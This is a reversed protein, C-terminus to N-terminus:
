RGATLVRRTLQPPVGRVRGILLPVALRHIKYCCAYARAEYRGKQGRHDDLRRRQSGHQIQEGGNGNQDNRQAPVVAGAEHGAEDAAHGDGQDQRREAADTKGEDGGQGGPPQGIEGQESARARVAGHFPVRDPPQEGPDRGRRRQGDDGGAHDRRAAIIAREVLIGTRHGLGEHVGLERGGAGLGQAGLGAFLQDAEEGARRRKRDACPKVM